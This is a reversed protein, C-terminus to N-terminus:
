FTKGLEFKLALKLAVLSPELIAAFNSPQLITQRGPLYISVYTPIDTPLLTPLHNPLYTPLYTPLYFQLYITQHSPNYTPLYALLYTPLDTHLYTPLYTFVYSQTSGLQIFRKGLKQQCLLNVHCFSDYVLKSIIKQLVIM